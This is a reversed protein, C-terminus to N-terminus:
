VVRGPGQAGTQMDDEPHLAAAHEFISAPPDRPLLIGALGPPADVTIETAHPTAPAEEPVIQAPMDEALDTPGSLPSRLRSLAVLHPNTDTPQSVDHKLNNAATSHEAANGGRLDPSLTALPTSVSDFPEVVMAGDLAADPVSDNAAPFASALAATQEQKRQSNGSAM